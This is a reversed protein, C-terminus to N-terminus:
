IAASLSATPKDLTLMYSYLHISGKRSLQSFETRLCILVALLCAILRCNIGSM